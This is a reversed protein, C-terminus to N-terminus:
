RVVFQSLQSVLRQAEHELTEVEDRGERYEVVHLQRKDITTHAAALADTQGLLNDLTHTERMAHLM